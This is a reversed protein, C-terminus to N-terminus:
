AATTHDANQHTHLVAATHEGYAEPTLRHGCATCTIGTQGDVAVLAFCDCDPCPASQPHRHPTAHTLDRVRHVLAGLQEHLEAAAPLTLAYPLYATLWACWATITRGHVPWAHTCPQTRATGHRDRHVSPYAYAIHGAWAALFPRIPVTADTDDDPDGVPDPHGPGLLVLVRLDVPLPSHARGTGARGQRADATPALFQALLETQGPLEALWGRIDDAHVPCLHHGDDATRYCLACATM